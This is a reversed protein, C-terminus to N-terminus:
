FNNNKRKQIKTKLEEIINKFKKSKLTPYNALWTRQRSNIRDVLKAQLSRLKKNRKQLKKIALKKVKENKVLAINEKLEKTTSQFEALIKKFHVMNNITIVADLVLIFTIAILIFNTLGASIFSWLNEVLPHAFNLFFITLIGWYLSFKLCVYGWLNFKDESYDWWRTDFLYELLFGTILEMISAIIFGGIFLTFINEKLPSLLMVIFVASSGYIPCVPGHLFGRNVFRKQKKFHYIVELTWGIFSYVIFYFFIEQLIKIGGM